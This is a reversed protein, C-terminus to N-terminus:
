CDMLNIHIGSLNTCHFSFFVICVNKEECKAKNMLKLRNNSHSSAIQRGSIKRQKVVKNLHEHFVNIYCFIYASTKVYFLKM